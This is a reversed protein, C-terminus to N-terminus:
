LLLPFRHLYYVRTLEGLTEADNVYNPKSGQHRRKHRLWLVTM